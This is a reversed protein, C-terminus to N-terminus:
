STWRCSACTAWRRTASASTTSRSGCGSRGCGARARRRRGRPGQGAVGRHDRAGAGVGRARHEGAVEAVEDAFGPAALQGASVNVAMTLPTGGRTSGTGARRRAARRAFVWRGLPVILGTEEAVPVFRDPTLAGLTPHDWRLLAEFGVVDGTVLDVVPQYLLTLQDSEAM